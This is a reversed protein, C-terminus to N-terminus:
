RRKIIMWAGTAIILLPWLPIDHSIWGMEEAFFYGGVLVMMGGAYYGGGDWCYCWSRVEKKETRRGSHGQADATYENM